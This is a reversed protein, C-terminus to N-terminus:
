ARLSLDLVGGIERIEPRMDALMALPVQASARAELKGDAGLTASGSVLGEKKAALRFEALSLAGQSWRIQTPGESAWTDGAVVLRVPDISLVGEGRRPEALPVRATARASLTRPQELSM